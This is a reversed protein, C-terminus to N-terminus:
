ILCLCRGSRGLERPRNQEKVLTFGNRLYFRFSEPTPFVYIPKVVRSALNQVLFSGLGLRRYNPKVYLSNLLSYSGKHSHIACAVLRDNHEILLLISGDQRFFMSALLELSSIILISGSVILPMFALSILFDKLSISCNGIVVCIGSLILFIGITIFLFFYILIKLDNLRLLTIGYIAPIDINRAQRITYDSPLSSSRSM